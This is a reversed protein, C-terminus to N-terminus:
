SAAQYHIPAQILLLVVIVAVCCCPGQKSVRFFSDLSEFGLAHPFKETDGVQLVLGVAPHPALDVEKHTWTFRRQCSDLSQFKRPKPVDCAM